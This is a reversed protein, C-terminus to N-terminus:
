ELRLGSAPRLQAVVLEAEVAVHKPMAALMRQTITPTTRNEFADPLLPPTLNIM